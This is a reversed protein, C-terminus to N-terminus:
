FIRQQSIHESGSLFHSDTLLVERFGMLEPIAEGKSLNMRMQEQSLTPKHHNNGPSKWGSSCPAWAGAQAWMYPLSSQIEEM